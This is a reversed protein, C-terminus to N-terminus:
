QAGYHLSDIEETFQEIFFTVMNALDEPSKDLYKGALPIKRELYRDEAYKVAIYPDANVDCQATTTEVEPICYDIDIDPNIMINNVLSVITELKEKLESQM